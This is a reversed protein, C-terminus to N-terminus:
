ECKGNNCSVNEQHSKVQLYLADFLQKFEDLKDWDICYKMKSRTVSGKIIGEKKLNLLHAAVTTRAIFDIDLIDEEACNKNKAISEVIAVRAPLGLSRCYAALKKHEPKANQKM